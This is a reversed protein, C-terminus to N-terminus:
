LWPIPCGQLLEMFSQNLAIYSLHINESEVYIHAMSRCGTLHKLLPEINSSTIGSSWLGTSGETSPIPCGQLLEMFSQNLAIYSLHINESEVYIYIDYYM